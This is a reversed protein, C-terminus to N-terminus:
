EGHLARSHCMIGKETHQQDDGIPFIQFSVTDEVTDFWGQLKTYPSICPHLKHGEQLGLFHAHM